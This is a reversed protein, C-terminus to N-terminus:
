PAAHRMAIARPMAIEGLVEQQRAMPDEPPPGEHFALDVLASALYEVTQFGTDFTRAALLRQMLAEPLPAGSEAHTAFRSLVEPEELWHEYLQSPLEVFDRAVARL